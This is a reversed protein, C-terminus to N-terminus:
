AVAVIPIGCAFEGIIDAMERDLEAQRKCANPCNELMYRPNLSCEGASAWGDCQPADDKEDTDRAAVVIAAPLLAVALSSLFLHPGFGHRACALSSLLVALFHTSKMIM